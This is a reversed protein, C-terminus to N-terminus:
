VHGRPPALHVVIRLLQFIVSTIEGAACSVKWRVLLLVEAYWPRPFPDGHRTNPLAHPLAHPPDVLWGASYIHATVFLVQARNWRLLRSPVRYITVTWDSALATRQPLSTEGPLSLALVGRETSIYRQQTAVWVQLLGQGRPFLGCLSQTSYLNYM